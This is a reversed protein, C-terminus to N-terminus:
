LWFVYLFTISVVFLLAAMPVGVRIFDRFSYGGPGMVLVNVPHGLPTIFAMSTAIAVGMAM